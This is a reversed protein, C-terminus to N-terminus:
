QNCCGTKIKLYQTQTVVKKGEDCTRTQKQTGFESNGGEWFGCKGSTYDCYRSIIGGSNQWNTCAASVSTAMSASISAVVVATIILKKAINKM